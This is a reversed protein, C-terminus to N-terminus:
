GAKRVELTDPCQELLQLTTCKFREHVLHPAIECLPILAFKRLPLEAPPITLNEDQITWGDYYLIDIDLTRPGWKGTRIRGAAAEIQQLRSLLAQPLLATTIEMVQNYFWPQGSVGWPQTEYIGSTTIIPGCLRSIEQHAINLNEARNGINSGM